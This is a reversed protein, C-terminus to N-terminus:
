SKVEGENWNDAGFQQRQYALVNGHEELVGALDPKPHNEPKMLKGDARKSLKGDEGYQIKQLNNAHIEAFAAEFPLELMYFLQLIVYVTDVGGDVVALANERSPNGIYRNLAPLLGTIPENVCEETVLNKALLALKCHLASVSDFQAIPVEATRPFMAYVEYFSRSTMLMMVDNRTINKFPHGPNPTESHLM